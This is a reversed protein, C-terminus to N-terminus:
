IISATGGGVNIYKALIAEKVDNDTWQGAETYDDGTWIELPGLELTNVLVRRQDPFDVMSIIKVESITKTRAPTVVTKEPALTIDKPLNLQIKM